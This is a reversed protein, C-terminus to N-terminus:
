FLEKEVESYSKFNDVVFNTIYGELIGDVWFEVASSIKNDVCKPREILHPTWRELEGGKFTKKQLTLRSLWENLM